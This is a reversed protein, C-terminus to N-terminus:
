AFRSSSLADGAPMMLRTLRWLTGGTRTRSECKKLAIGGTEELFAFILKEEFGVSVLMSESDLFGVIARAPIGSQLLLYLFRLGDLIVNGVALSVLLM